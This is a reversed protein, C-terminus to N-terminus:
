DVIIMPLRPLNCFDTAFNYAGANLFTIKDGVKPKDLYVRYRLIDMSDPTCGKVTYAEGQMEPLEGDIELRVHAIFTDMAANYVSADVIINDKYINKINTELKICPAAIFRGPEIIMAINYRHLWERLLHIRSFITSLMNVRSNKYSVPVGGGINVFGITELTEQSLSQELEEKISWENINQTKRHFHIGIKEIHPDDKLRKVTMNIENAYMGFVFHKGTHITHEKLRMRLLLNIRVNNAKVFSLLAELDAMNDVVFQRVGKQFVYSLEDDNWAQGFFWVRSRNKINDLMSAFHISFHCNTSEELIQGVPRNTKMSYSVIDAVRKITEYQQMLKSRSLIFRANTEM